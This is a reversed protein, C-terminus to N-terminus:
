RRRLQQDSGSGTQVPLWRIEIDRLLQREAEEVALDQQLEFCLQKQTAIALAQETLALQVQQPSVLGQEARDPQLGFSHLLVAKDHQQILFLQFAASYRSLAQQNRIKVQLRITGESLGALTASDLGLCLTVPLRTNHIAAVKQDSAVGSNCGAIALLTSCLLRTIM